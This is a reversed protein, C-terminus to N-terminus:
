QVCPRDIREDWMNEGTGATGSLGTETNGGRMRFDQKGRFGTHDRFGGATRGSVLFVAHKRIAQFTEESIYHEIRCADKMATEASVGLATLVSYLVLYREYLREAASRGKETFVLRGTSEMMLYGGSRLRSVARSVASKSYGMEEAVDVSRICTKKMSLKLITKLYMEGSESLAMM